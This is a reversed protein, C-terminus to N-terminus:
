RNQVSVYNLKFDEIESSTFGYITQLQNIIQQFKPLETAPTTVIKYMPGDVILDYIVDIQTDTIIKSSAPLDKYGWIFGAAESAAHLAAAKQQDTTSTNSMTAIVGHCYNIITAANVKEWNTLIEAKGEELLVNDKKIVGNQLKIFGNQIRKYFSNPNTSDSRRAAYNAIFTDPNPTKSATPTNPFTPNGGYIALVQDITAITIEGSLKNVAYKYNMAGFLGKEVIQELELGDSNFLYGGYTGGNNRNNPNFTKGSNEALNHLHGWFRSIEQSQFENTNESLRVPQAEFLSVLTFGDLKTGSVRGRKMETVLANFNTILGAEQYTNEIFNNGNYKTILTSAPDTDEKKCSNFMLLAAIPLTLIKYM